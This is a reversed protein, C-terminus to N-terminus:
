KKTRLSKSQNNESLEKMIMFDLLQLLKTKSKKNLCDSYRYDHETYSDSIIEYCYKVDDPYYVLINLAKEILMLDWNNIIRVVNWSVKKYENQCDQLKDILKEAKGRKIVPSFINVDKFMQNIEDFLLKQTKDKVKSGSVLSQKIIFASFSIIRSKSNFWKKLVTLRLPNQPGLADIDHIINNLKEIPSKTIM